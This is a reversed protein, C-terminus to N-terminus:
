ITIVYYMNIISVDFHKFYIYELNLYVKLNLLRNIVTYFM